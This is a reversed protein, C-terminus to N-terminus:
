NTTPLGSGLHGIPTDNPANSRNAVGKSVIKKEIVNRVQKINATITATLYLWM